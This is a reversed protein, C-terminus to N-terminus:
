KGDAAEEPSQTMQDNILKEARGREFRINDLTEGVGFAKARSQAYELVRNDESELGIAKRGGDRFVATWRMSREPDEPVLFCGQRLFGDIPATAAVLTLGLIYRRLADGAQRDNEEAHLSRLAILNVSVDRRIEGNVVIGGLVQQKQKDDRWIAPAHRFGLSSRADGQKKRDKKQLDQVPTLAGVAEYEVPPVYQAARHLISCDWARVVANLLRPLKVGRGRSDWAGFVLSTPALKAIKAADDHWYLYDFAEVAQNAMTSSRILADALRHGVKLISVEDSKNSGPKEKREVLISTQPVLSRYREDRFIPEIRNAQAAVSDMQVVIRGDSLTDMCYGIDAYTPPFVVPNPGEDISTLVQHAVLAVPAMKNDPDAWEDLLDHTITLADESM